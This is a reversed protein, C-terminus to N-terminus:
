SWCIVQALYERKEDQSLIFLQWTKKSTSLLINREAGNTTGVAPSTAGGARM